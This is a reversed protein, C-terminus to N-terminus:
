VREVMRAFMRVSEVQNAIDEIEQQSKGVAELIERPDIPRSSGEPDHWEPLAHTFKVVDWRNWLGWKEFVQQLLRVEYRSLKTSSPDPDRLRVKFDAQDSILRSWPTEDQEAGSIHDYVESLVPGKDMSVMRAGTIPYGTEVFSQRDALYLLKLLHIHYMEGEALRILHAAAQAAKEGDFVFRM